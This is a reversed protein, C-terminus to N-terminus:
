LSRLYEILLRVGYGTAGKPSYPTPTDSLAQGAIDLHAWPYDTFEKLFIASTGVGGFRGGGNKMDASITEIAKKYDDWLPMRWLREHTSNGANELGGALGDDNSFLSGAVGAGLAIVSAGTLTALDVVVDPDYRKAYVLADALAMRGEADTSIIEITKGNSATIVDGPRYAHADPMNETCPCIGIIRQPLNLIGVTKMAGLVAAAGGMDGKMRWMEASPKISIGGTDFTIGKGVLVITDAGVKDANHELVVFKPEYGAGQAVALFAGMGHKTAWERDGIITTMGYNGAIKEATEAMYSPTCYNAPLNVLNRALITGACIAQGIVSGAEIAPVKTGDVEVITLSEIENQLERKVTPNDFRYLALVSGEVTAQAAAQVDLGGVGAGHVITAVQKSNLERAQAIAKGAARRVGELNFGERKGLGVVLVRKANIKGQPYLVRVEGAKGTVDGQLILDSIAGGLAQDVAGTGGGPTIVDDFLNVIITDATSTQISGHQIHIKM